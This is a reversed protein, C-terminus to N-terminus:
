VIERNVLLLNADQKNIKQGTVSTMFIMWPHKVFYGWKKLWGTCESCYYFGHFLLLWSFSGSCSHIGWCYHTIQVPKSAILLDTTPRGASDSKCLLELSTTWIALIIQCWDFTNITQSESPLCPVYTQHQIKKGMRWLHKQHEWKEIININDVSPIEDIATHHHNSNIYNVLLRSCCESHTPIKYEHQLSPRSLASVAWSATLIM